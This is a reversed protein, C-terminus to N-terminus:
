FVSGLIPGLTEGVGQASVFMGSIINHLHVEDIDPYIEEVAEIMEPLVPIVIMGAGSGLVALGLVTLGPSENFGLLKSPGILFFAM